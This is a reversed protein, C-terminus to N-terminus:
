KWVAHYQKAIREARVLTQRDTESLEGSIARRITARVENAYDGVITPPMGKDRGLMAIEIICYSSLYVDKRIYLYPIIDM